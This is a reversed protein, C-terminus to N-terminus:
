RLLKWAVIAGVVVGAVVAARGRMRSRGGPMEEVVEVRVDLDELGCVLPRASEMEWAGPITATPLRPM